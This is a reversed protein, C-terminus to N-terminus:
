FRALFLGAFIERANRGGLLPSLLLARSWFFFFQDSSLAGQPRSFGGPLGWGSARGPDLRPGWGPAVPLSFLIEPGPGPSLFVDLVDVGASCRFGATGGSIAPASALSQDLAWDAILGFRLTLVRRGCRLPRRSRRAAPAFLRLCGPGFLASVAAM